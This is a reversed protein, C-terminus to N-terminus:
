SSGTEKDNKFHRVVCFSNLYTVGIFSPPWFHQSRELSIVLVLSGKGGVWFLTSNPAFHTFSLAKKPWLMALPLLPPPPLPRRSSGLAACFITRIYSCLGVSKNSPLAKECLGLNKQGGNFCILLVLLPRWWMVIPYSNNHSNPRKVARWKFKSLRLTVRLPESVRAVM